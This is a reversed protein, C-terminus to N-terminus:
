KMAEIINIDVTTQSGKYLFVSSKNQFDALFIADNILNGIRHINFYSLRMILSPYCDSTSGGVDARASIGLRNIHVINM